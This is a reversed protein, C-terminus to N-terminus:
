RRGKKRIFGKVKKGNRVYGKVRVAGGKKKKDTATKDGGERREKLSLQRDKLELQKEVLGRRADSQDLSKGWLNTRVAKDEVEMKKTDIKEKQLALQRKSNSIDAINRVALTASRGAKASTHALNAVKNGINVIQDLKAIGTNSKRKRDIIRDAADFAGVLNRVTGAASASSGTVKSAVELKYDLRKQRKTRREKAFEVM